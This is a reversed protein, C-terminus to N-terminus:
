QELQCTAIKNAFEVKINNGVKKFVTGEPVSLCYYSKSTKQKIKIIMMLLKLTWYPRNYSSGSALIEKEM